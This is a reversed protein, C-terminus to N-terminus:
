GGSHGIVDEIVKVKVKVMSARRRQDMVLEVGLEELLGGRGSWGSSGPM